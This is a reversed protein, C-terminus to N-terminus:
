GNKDSYENLVRSVSNYSSVGKCVIIQESEQKKISACAIVVLSGCIVTLLLLQLSTVFLTANRYEFADVFIGGLLPGFFFGTAFTTTLIGSLAAHKGAGNSDNDFDPSEFIASKLLSLCSTFQASLGMGNLFLAAMCLPISTPLSIFPAPGILMSSTIILMTGIMAIPIGNEKRQSALAWVLTFVSLTAGQLVYM